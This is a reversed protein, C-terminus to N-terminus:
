SQKRVILGKLYSGEPFNLAIPHDASQDLHGIIQTNVKADLAAGAVIKQFLEGNIGGSCSFTFLIGGPSLLKLALLNIDKYGRAARQAQSKTPAFKPPDLIILDFRLRKDRFKRLENFVDGQIWHVKEEKYDNLALNQKTLEIANRSAEVSVVTAAGGKLANILFGGTYSFCDLVHKGKVFEKVRRRNERQDLYFGTKHGHRFDILFKVGHEDIEIFDNPIVGSLKGSRLELGELRRVEADSREYVGSVGQIEQLFNIITSRWYEVGASLFQVVLIDRYRDVILGPLGDSEAHVMRRANTTNDIGLDYRMQFSKTIRNSLFEETILENENWMWLRIRIRSNPSYAGWALFENEHSLVAVTEGMAIEVDMKGIAGSFIWPHKKNVSKERGKKLKVSPNGKFLEM